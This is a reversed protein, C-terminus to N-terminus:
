LLRSVNTVLVMPLSTTTSSMLSGTITVTVAPCSGDPWGDTGRATGSFSATSPGGAAGKDTVGIAIEVWVEGDGADDVGTTAGAGANAGAAEEGPLESVKQAVDGLLYGTKKSVSRLIADNPNTLCTKPPFM